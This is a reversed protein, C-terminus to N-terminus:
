EFPFHLLFRLPIQLNEKWFVQIEVNFYGTAVTDSLPFLCM